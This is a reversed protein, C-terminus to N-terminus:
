LDMISSKKYNRYIIITGNRNVNQAEVVLLSVSMINDKYNLIVLDIIQRKGRFENIKYKLPGDQVRRKRDRYQYTSKVGSDVMINYVKDMDSITIFICDGEHAHLVKITVKAAM